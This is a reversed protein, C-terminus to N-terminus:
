PGDVARYRAAPRPSSPARTGDGGLEPPQKASPVGPTPYFSTFCLWRVECAGNVFREQDLVYMPETEWLSSTKKVRIGRSDMERCAQEVMAVRDGLNSGLAIYATRKSPRSGACGCADRPPTTSFSREMTMTKMVKARLFTRRGSSSSHISSAVRTRYCFISRWVRPALYFSM